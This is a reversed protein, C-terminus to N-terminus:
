TGDGFDDSAPDEACSLAVAGVYGAKARGVALHREVSGSVVADRAISVVFLPNKHRRISFAPASASRSELSTRAFGRQLYTLISFLLFFDHRVIEFDIEPERFILKLQRL